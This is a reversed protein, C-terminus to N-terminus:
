PRFGPRLGRFATGEIAVGSNTDIHFDVHANTHTYYVRMYAATAALHKMRSAMCSAVAAATTYRRGAAM